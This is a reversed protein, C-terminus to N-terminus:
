HCAVPRACILAWIRTAAARCPLPRPNKAQSDVPQGSWLLGDNDFVAIREDPPVSDPSDAQTVKTVFEVLSHTTGADERRLEQFQLQRSLSALWTRRCWWGWWENVPRDGSVPM